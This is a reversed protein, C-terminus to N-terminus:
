QYFDFLESATEEPTQIHFDFDPTNIEPIHKVKKWMNFFYKSFDQVSEILYSSVPLTDCVIYDDMCSFTQFDVGDQTYVEAISKLHEDDYFIAFSMIDAATKIPIKEIYKRCEELLTAVGYKHAIVFLEFVTVEHLILKKTEISCLMCLFARIDKNRIPMSRESNESKWLDQFVTSYELLYEAHESDKKIYMEFNRETVTTKFNRTNSKHSWYGLVYSGPCKEQIKKRLNKFYKSLRQETNILSLSVPETDFSSTVLNNETEFNPNDIQIGQFYKTSNINSPEEYAMNNETEFDCKGYETKQSFTNPNREKSYGAFLSSGTEFYPNQTEEAHTRTYRKSPGLSDSNDGSDFNQEGNQIKRFTDNRTSYDENFSDNRTECHPIDSQIKNSYKKTNKRPPDKYLSTFNSISLATERMCKEIYKRCEKLVMLVNFQHALKYLDFITAGYLILKKSEIFFLMCLFAPLEENRILVCNDESERMTTNWMAQFVSSNAMLFKAHVSDKRLYVKFDPSPSLKFSSRENEYNWHAALGVGAEVWQELTGEVLVTLTGEHLYESSNNLIVSREVYRESFKEYGFNEVNFLFEFTRPLKKEKTADLINLICTCKLTYKKYYLSGFNRIFITVCDCEKCQQDKGRISIHVGIDRDKQLSIKKRNFSPSDKFEHINFEEEFRLQQALFLNKNYDDM